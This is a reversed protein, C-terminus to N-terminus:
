PTINERGSKDFDQLMPLEIDINEDYSSCTHLIAIFCHVHGYVSVSLDPPPLAPTERTEFSVLQKDEGICSRRYIHFDEM